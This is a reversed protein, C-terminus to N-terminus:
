TVYCLASVMGEASAAVLLSATVAVTRAIESAFSQHKGSETRTIGATM